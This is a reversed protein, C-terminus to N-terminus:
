EGNNGGYNDWPIEKRVIHRIKTNCKPCEFEYRLKLVYCDGTAEETTADKYILKLETMCFPCKVM